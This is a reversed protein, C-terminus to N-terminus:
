CFIGSLSAATRVPEWRLLQSQLGAHHTTGVGQAAAGAAARPTGSQLDPFLMPFQVSRGPGSILCCLIMTM